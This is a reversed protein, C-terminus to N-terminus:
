PQFKLADLAGWPSDPDDGSKECRCRERNLNVGCGPCLGACDEGCLLNMPMELLLEARVDETIDLEEGEPNEYFLEVEGATVEQAAPELCRGCIGAVATRVCGTVLVGGSIRRALLRYSVPDTVRFLESEEIELLSAPESGELEINQKELLSVSFRIM